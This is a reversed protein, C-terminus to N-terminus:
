ALVERLENANAVFASKCDRCNMNISNAHVLDGAIKKEEESIDGYFYVSLSPRNKYRSPHHIKWARYTFFPLSEAIARDFVRKVEPSYGGYSCRSIVVITESNALVTGIYQLRDKCVCKGPTKLWCGFCGQCFLAKEWASVILYDEASIRLAKFAEDSLDHIITKLPNM